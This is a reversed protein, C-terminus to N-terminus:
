SSPHADSFATVGTVVEGYRRINKKRPVQFWGFETLSNCCIGPGTSERMPTMRGCYAFRKEFTRAIQWSGLSCYALKEGAAINLIACGTSKPPESRFASFHLVTAARNLRRLGGWGSSEAGM